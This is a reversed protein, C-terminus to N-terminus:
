LDLNLRDNAVTNQAAIIAPLSALALALCLRRM